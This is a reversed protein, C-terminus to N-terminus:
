RTLLVACILMALVCVTNQSAMGPVLTEPPLNTADATSLDFTDGFVERQVSLRMASHSM